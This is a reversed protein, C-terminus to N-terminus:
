WQIILWAFITHDVVIILNKYLYETKAKFYIKNPFLQYLM